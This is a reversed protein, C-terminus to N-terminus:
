QTNRIIIQKKKSQYEMFEYSVTDRGHELDFHGEQPLEEDKDADALTSQGCGM